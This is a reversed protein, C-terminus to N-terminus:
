PTVPENQQNSATMDSAVRSRFDKKWLMTWDIRSALDCGEPESIMVMISDPEYSTMGLLELARQKLHEFFMDRSDQRRSVRGLYAFSRADGPAGIQEFLAKAQFTRSTPTVVLPRNCSPTAFAMSVLTGGEISSGGAFSLGRRAMLGLIAEKLPVTAGADNAVTARVVGSCLLLGLLLTRVIWNNMGPAM